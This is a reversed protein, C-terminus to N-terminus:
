GVVMNDVYRSLEAEVEEDTSFDYSFTRGCAPCKFSKINKRGLLKNKITLLHNYRLKNRDYVCTLGYQPYYPCYRQGVM